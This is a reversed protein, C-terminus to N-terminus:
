SANRKAYTEKFYIRFCDICIGSSHKVDSTGCVTNKGKDMCWACHVPYTVTNKIEM